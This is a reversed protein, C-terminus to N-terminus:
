TRLFRRQGAPILLLSSGQPAKLDKNGGGDPRKGFLRLPHM